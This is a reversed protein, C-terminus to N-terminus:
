EVGSNVFYDIRLGSRKGRLTSRRFSKRREQIGTWAPQRLAPKIRIKVSDLLDGAPNRFVILM